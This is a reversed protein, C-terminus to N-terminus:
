VTASTNYIRRKTEGEYGFVTSDPIPLESPRNACAALLLTLIIGVALFFDRKRKEM